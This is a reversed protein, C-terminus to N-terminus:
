RFREEYEAELTMHRPWFDRPERDNMIDNLLDFHAHWGAAAGVRYDMSDLKEHVLHLEVGAEVAKLTISVQTPEGENEPWTFVLRNPKDYVLVEGELRIKCDDAYKSPPPSQSIRTHDFDFVIVGGVRPEVDGGCFWKRRHEDEVLYAWVQEPTSPFVRKLELRGPETMSVYENKEM